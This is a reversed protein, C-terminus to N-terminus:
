FIVANNPLIVVEAKVVVVEAKIGFHNQLRVIQEEKNGSKKLGAEKLLAELQKKNIRKATLTAITRIFEQRQADTLIESAHEHAPNNFIRPKIRRNDGTHPVNPTTKCEKIPEGDFTRKKSIIPDVIVSNDFECFQFLRERLPVHLVGGKQMYENVSDSCPFSSLFENWEAIKDKRNPYAENFKISTKERKEFSGLKFGMPIINKTPIDTLINLPQASDEAPFWQVSTLVPELGVGLDLVGTSAKKRIEFVEDQYYARYNIKVGLKHRESRGVAQFKWILQTQEKKLRLKLCV